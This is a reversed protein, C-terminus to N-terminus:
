AEAGATRPRQPWRGTEGDLTLALALALAFRETLLRAGQEAIGAVERPFDTM